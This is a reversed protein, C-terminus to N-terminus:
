LQLLYIQKKDRWDIVGDKNTDKRQSTFLLKTTDPSLCPYEDVWGSTLRRKEGDIEVLWIGGKWSYVIKKGDFSWCLHGAEGLEKKEKTELNIIIATNGGSDAKWGGSLIGLLRKGDPSPHIENFYHQFSEEIFLSTDKTELNVRFINGGQIFFIDKGDALYVPFYNDIEKKKVLCEKKREKDMIWISGNEEYTIYDGKPSFSPNNGKDLFYTKRNKIEVLWIGKEEGYLLSKGSPSFSLGNKEGPTSIIPRKREKEMIWIENKGELYAIICGDASWIAQSGDTLYKISNEGTSERSLLIFLISSLLIIKKIKIM